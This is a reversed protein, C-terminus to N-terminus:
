CSIWYEVRILQKDNFFLTWNAEGLYDNNLNLHLIKVFGVGYIEREFKKNFSNPFYKQLDATTTNKDLRFKPTSLFASSNRFDISRFVFTDSTAEFEIGKVYFHRYKRNQFFMACEDEDSSLISDPKGLKDKVEAFGTFLPIVSNIKVYDWRLTDYKPISDNLQTEVTKQQDPKNQNCSFLFILPLFMLCFKM